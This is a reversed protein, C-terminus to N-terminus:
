IPPSHQRIEKYRGIRSNIWGGQGVEQYPV